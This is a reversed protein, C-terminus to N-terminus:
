VGEKAFVPNHSLIQETVYAKKGLENCFRAGTDNLLIGGIGRMLEAVLTKSTNEPDAPDIWGAKDMDVTNVGLATALSIGNGTSFNVATTAM